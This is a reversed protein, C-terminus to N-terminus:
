NTAYKQSGPQHSWVTTIITRDLAILFMAMLSTTTLIVVTTLPQKQFKEVEVGSPDREVDLSSKKEWDVELPPTTVGQPTSNKSVM